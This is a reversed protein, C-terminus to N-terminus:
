HATAMASNRPAYGDRTHHEADRRIRGQAVVSSLSFVSSPRLLSLSSHNLSFCGRARCELKTALLM